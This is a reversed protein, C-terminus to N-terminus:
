EVGIEFFVAEAGSVTGTYSTEGDQGVLGSAIAGSTGATLSTNTLISYSKGAVSSWTIVLGNTMSFDTMKLVDDTDTPNTGAAYEQWAAHGDADTDVEDDAETLGYQELWLILTDNDTFGEGAPLFEVDAMGYNNNGSTPYYRVYRYSSADTVEILNWAGSEPISDITALVTWNLGDNSGEFTNGYVMYQGRNVVNSVGNIELYFTGGTGFSDNRLRFAAYGIQQGNGEGYDLGGYGGTTNDDMFTDLDKDFLEYFWRTEEAGSNNMQGFIDYANPMAQESSSLEGEGYENVGSAKYYYLVGVTGSTDTYTNETVNTAIQVYTEDDLSRYVCYTDASTVEDWYVSVAHNTEPWAYLNQPTAPLATTEIEYVEFEGFTVKANAGFFIQAANTDTLYGDISIPDCSIDIDTGIGRGGNWNDVEFQIMKTFHNYTMLIDYGPDGQWAGSNYVVTGNRNVRVKSGSSGSQWYVYINNGSRPEYSNGASPAPNGLGFFIYPKTSSPAEIAVRATWSHGMWNSYVTGLYSRASDDDTTVYDLVAGGQLFTNTTGDQALAYDNTYSWVSNSAASIYENFDLAVSAADTLDNTFFQAMAPQSGACVMLAAGWASIINRKM